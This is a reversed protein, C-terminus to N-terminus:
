EFILKLLRKAMSNCGEITGLHTPPEHSRGEIGARQDDYILMAINAVYGQKLGEDCRLRRGMFRRAIAFLNM